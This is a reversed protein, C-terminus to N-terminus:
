PQHSLVALAREADGAPVLVHDHFFGAIVNASIGHEALVGAVAATLGVAELSSHVQLTIRRFCAEFALGHQEARARPVVLTLGEAEAITAVPDLHSLDGYRAQPVTCFVLEGDRLVPSMERLLTPLDRLGSMSTAYCAPPGPSPRPAAASM